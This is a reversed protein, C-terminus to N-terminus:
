MCNPLTDVDTRGRPEVTDTHLWWRSHLHDHGFDFRILLTNAHASPASSNVINICKTQFNSPGSTEKASREICGRLKRTSPREQPM